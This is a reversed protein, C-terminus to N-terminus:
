SSSRSTSAATTSASTSCRPSTPIRSRPSRRAGTSAIGPASDPRHFGGAAARVAVTRGTKTDRARICIAPDPLSSGSSCTTTRSSASRVAPPRGDHLAQLEIVRRCWSRRTASRSSVLAIDLTPVGPRRAHEPLLRRAPRGDRARRHAPGDRRGAPRAGTGDDDRAGRAADRHKDFRTWTLGERPPQAPVFRWAARCAARRIRSCISSSRRSTTPSCSGTPAQTDRSGASAPTRGIGAARLRRSHRRAAGGADAVRQVREAGVELRLVRRREVFPTRARWAASTSSGAAAARACTRCRRTAATSSAPSIPTSSTTGSEVTMDAVPAFVGVGANNVLIDIGGFRPRRPSRAARRRTAAVDARSPWSAGRRPVPARQRGRDLAREDHDRHDGRRRGPSCRGRSPSASAARDAPSSRAVKGTLAVGVM